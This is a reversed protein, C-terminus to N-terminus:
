YQAPPTSTSNYRYPTGSRYSQGYSTVYPQGYSQGYSSYDNCGYSGQIKYRNEWGSKIFYGAIVTGFPAAVATLIEGPIIRGTFAWMGLAFVIVIFFLLTVSVALVKSFEYKKPNQM